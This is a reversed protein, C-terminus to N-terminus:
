VGGWPNYATRLTVTVTEGPQVPQDFVLLVDHPNEPVGGVSVLWDM